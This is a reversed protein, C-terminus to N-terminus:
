LGIDPNYQASKKLPPLTFLSLSHCLRSKELIILCGAMVDLVKGFVICNIERWTREFGVLNEIKALGVIALVLLCDQM